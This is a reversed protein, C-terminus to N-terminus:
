PVLVIKGRLHGTALRTFAERVEALPYTAAIPVELEGAAILGALQSLTAANAGVANGEAKIGYKEVADFRVITDVREPAVGLQDLAVEVYGDGHTDIFADPDPAAARIRDALGPEAYTVPIVDHARLWDHNAESALGVVTAGNRRALQVALAGVGGAAGSVVVTDGPKAGGVANVAAWATFGAVPLAGAVEWPVAEPKPVVNAAEAVVHEAQSSRTDVWGIVEDGAAVGTVGDGAQEVVGAFDSGQGSPFTAPFLAHMAGERIKAEGPNIGAARVRVLVEGPGPAPLAVEDVRLVDIGGYESFRVAKM